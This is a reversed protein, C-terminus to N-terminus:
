SYCAFIRKAAKEKESSYGHLMCLKSMVQIQTSIGAVVLMVHLVEGLVSYAVTFSNSNTPM